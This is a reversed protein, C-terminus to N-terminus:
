RWRLRREDLESGRWHCSGTMLFPRGRTWVDRWKVGVERAFVRGLGDENVGVVVSDAMGGGGLVGSSKGYKYLDEERGAALSAPGEQSAIGAEFLFGFNFKYWRRAPTVPKVAM